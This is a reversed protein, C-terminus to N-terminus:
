NKYKNQIFTKDLDNRRQTQFYRPLEVTVDNRNSLKNEIAHVYTTATAKWTYKSIVRKYGQKQYFEYRDYLKLLGKAIDETNLVDLLVGFQEEGEELVDSPGGYKTVAVPLGTSMAEIPALGFPEYLATLCFTGGLKAIYRYTDALERQSNISIFLVKGKLDHTYILSMIENIIAIESQKLMSYDEYANDVGRLSILLNTRNQLEENEAYAKM